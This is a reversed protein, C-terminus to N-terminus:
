LLAVELVALLTQENIVVVNMLRCNNNCQASALQPATYQLRAQRHTLTTIELGHDRSEQASSNM